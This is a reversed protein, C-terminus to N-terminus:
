NIINVSLDSMKHVSLLCSDVSVPLSVRLISSNINCTNKNNINKYCPLKFFFITICEVQM